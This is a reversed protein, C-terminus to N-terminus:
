PLTLLRQACSRCYPAAELFVACTPCCAAGCEICGWQESSSSLRNGCPCVEPTPIRDALRALGIRVRPKM